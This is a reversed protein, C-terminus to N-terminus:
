NIIYLIRATNCYEIPVGAYECDLRYALKSTVGDCALECHPFPAPLNHSKVQRRSVPRGDSVHLRHYRLFWPPRLQNNRPVQVHFNTLCTVPYLVLLDCLFHHLCAQLTHYSIIEEWPSLHPTPIPPRQLHPPLFTYPLGTSVVNQPGVTPDELVHNDPIWPVVRVMEHDHPAQM